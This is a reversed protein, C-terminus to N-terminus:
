RLSSILAQVQWKSERKGKIQCSMLNDKSSQRKIIKKEIEDEEEEEMMMLMM